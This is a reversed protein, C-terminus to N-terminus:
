PRSAQEGDLVKRLRDRNQTQLLLFLFHGRQEAPHSYTHGLRALISPFGAFFFCPKRARPGPGHDPEFRGVQAFKRFLNLPLNPVACAVLCRHSRAAGASGGTERSIANCNKKESARTSNQRRAPRTFSITADPCSVFYVRRM